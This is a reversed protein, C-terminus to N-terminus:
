ALMSSPNEIFGKFAVLWRSAIAQDVVREDSSLTVTVTSSSRAASISVPAGDESFDGDVVLRRRPASVALICAQPPNIVASFEQVGFM